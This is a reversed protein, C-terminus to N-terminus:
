NVIFPFGAYSLWLVTILIWAVEPREKYAYNALYGCVMAYVPIGMVVFRQLASHAPPQLALAFPWLLVPLTSIVCIWKFRQENM